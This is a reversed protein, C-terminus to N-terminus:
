RTGEMQAIAYISPHRHVAGNSGAPFAQLQMAVVVNGGVLGGGCRERLRGLERRVLEGGGGMAEADGKEGWM